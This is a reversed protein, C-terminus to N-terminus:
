ALHRRLRKRAFDGVFAVMLLGVLALRLVILTRPSPAFGLIMADDFDTMVEPADPVRDQRGDHLWTCPNPFTTRARPPLGDKPM